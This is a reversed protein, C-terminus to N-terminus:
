MTLAQEWWVLAVLFFVVKFLRVVLVFVGFSTLVSAARSNEPSVPLPPM